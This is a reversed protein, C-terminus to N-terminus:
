TEIETDALTLVLDEFKGSNNIIIDTAYCHSPCHPCLGPGGPAPAESNWAFFEFQLNQVTFQVFIRRAAPSRGPWSRFSYRKGLGRLRLLPSPLSSLPLFPNPIPLPLSPRLPTPLSPFPSPHLPLPHSPLFLPIQGPAGSNPVGSSSPRPKNWPLDPSPPRAPRRFDM